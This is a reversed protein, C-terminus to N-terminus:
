QQEADAGIVTTTSNWILNTDEGGSVVSPSFSSTALAFQADATGQLKLDPANIKLKRVESGRCTTLTQAKVLHVSVESAASLVPRCDDAARADKKTSVGSPRVCLLCVVSARSQLTSVSAMEGQVVEVFLWVSICSTWLCQAIYEDALHCFWVSPAVSL